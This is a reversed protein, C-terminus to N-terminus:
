AASRAANTQRKVHGILKRVFHVLLGLTIVICAYLPIRDAPNRVVSFSSAYTRSGKRPEIFSSQYLTYGAHRLPANMSIRVPEEVGNEIKTIDSEYSKAMNMGPHDDKRFDDLVVTFPLPWRRHAFGIAYRRGDADVSWDAHQGAWLLGTRRTGDQHIVDVYCGALDREALAELTRPLLVHGDVVPLGGSRAGRGPVVDANRHVDHIELDFPLEAGHVARSTGAALDMFQEGPVVYEISRGADDVTAVTIEWEHYSEFEASREGEWLTTHGKQSSLFEVLSGGMLLLIGVHVILV